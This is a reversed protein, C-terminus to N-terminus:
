FIAEFREKNEASIRELEKRKTIDRVIRRFRRYKGTEYGNSWYELLFRSAYDAEKRSISRRGSM